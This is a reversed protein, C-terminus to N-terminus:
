LWTEPIHIRDGPQLEVDPHKGRKVDKLNVKLKVIEGKDDSKRIITTRNPAAFKTFGGAMICANLATLGEQFDYVGPSNVEGEVYIKSEGVNLSKQSPIYIVDGSHLVMNHSMDGRDMLKKLDVKIPERRSLLNEIDSGSAIENTSERFLYAVNGREPSAGGAKAILEMLSVESTTEYLGPANVAGSIYYHLSHYAKIRVNIEPNVFYDQALPDKILTELEPITLGDAKVPGIFPINIVGQSSVALDVQNQM